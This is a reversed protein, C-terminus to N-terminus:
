MQNTVMEVSLHNSKTDSTKQGNNFKNSNSSSDSENIYKLALNVCLKQTCYTDCKGCIINYQKEAFVFSLWISIMMTTTLLYVTIYWFLIFYENDNIIGRFLSSIVFLIGFIFTIFVLTSQHSIHKLLKLQRQSLASNNNNDNNNNNNNNAHGTTCQDNDTTQNENKENNSFDTSHPSLIGDSSTNISSSPSSIHMTHTGSHVKIHKAYYHFKSYKKQQMLILTFLNKGYIITVVGYEIFYCIFATIWLSWALISSENNIYRLYQSIM